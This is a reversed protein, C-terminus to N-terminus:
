KCREKLQEWTYKKDKEIFLEIGEELVKKRLLQEKVSKPVPLYELYPEKKKNFMLYASSYPAGNMIFTDVTSSMLILSDTKIVDTICFKICNFWDKVFDGTDFVKRTERKKKYLLYVSEYKVRKKGENYHISIFAM